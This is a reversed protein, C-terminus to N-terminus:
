RGPRPWSGNVIAMLDPAIGDVYRAGDFVTTGQWAGHDAARM